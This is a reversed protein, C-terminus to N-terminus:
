RRWKRCTITTGHQPATAIDFEDMLRRSAAIGISRKGNTFGGPQLFKGVDVIGPGHDAFVLELGCRHGLQVLRITVTGEGAYQLMNRTLESTATAIRAQNVASFGMQRAIDRAAMRAVAIDSDARISIISNTTDQVEELMM